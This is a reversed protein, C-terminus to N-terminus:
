SAKWNQWARRKALFVVLEKEWFWRLLLWLQHECLKLSKWCCVETFIEFYKDNILDVWKKEDFSLVQNRYISQSEWKGTKEKLVGVVIDPYPKITWMKDQKCLNHNFWGSNLLNNSCQQRGNHRGRRSQTSLDWHYRRRKMLHQRRPRPDHKLYKGHFTRQLDDWRTIKHYQQGSTPPTTPKNPTGGGETNGGCEWFWRMEGMECAPPDGPPLIDGFGRISPPLKGVGGGSLGGLAPIFPKWLSYVDCSNRISDLDSVSQLDSNRLTM